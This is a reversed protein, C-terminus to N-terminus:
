DCELTLGPKAGKKAEILALRNEIIKLRKPELRCASLECCLPSLGSVPYCICLRGGEKLLRSACAAADALTCNQQHRADRRQENESLTGGTFYPPNCVAADFNEFGAHPRLERLDACLTDIHEDQGNTQVSRRILECMDERIEVATFRAHTRGQLLIALIGTGAGLDLAREGAKIHTFAALAVADSGYSFSPKDTYICLGNEQLDEIQLM